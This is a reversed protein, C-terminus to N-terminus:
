FLQALIKADIKVPNKENKFNIKELNKPSIKPIKLKFINKAAGIKELFNEIKKRAAPPNEADFIKLLKKQDSNQAFFEAFFGTTAAAAIGHRVGFNETFFYSISHCITTGTAGFALGALISVLSIERCIKQDGAVFKEANKFLIKISKEAFFQTLFNSNKNWFSEISHAFIDAVASIKEIKPLSFILNPDIIAVDPITKEHAFIKKRNKFTLVSFQNIESSTAPTTPIVFFPACKKQPSFNPAFIERIECNNSFATAVIKATDIASGGGIAGIADVNKQRAIELANEAFEVPPNPPIKEFFYIKGPLNKELIELFGNKRASNKGCCILIKPSNKGIKKFFNKRLIEGIELFKNEGFFIKTPAFFNFNM